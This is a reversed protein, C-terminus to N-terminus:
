QAASSTTTQTASRAELGRQAQQTGNREAHFARADRTAGWSTAFAPSGTSPEAARVFCAEFWALMCFPARTSARASATLLPLCCAIKATANSMSSATHTAPSASLMGLPCFPGCVWSSFTTTSFSARSRTSRHPCSSSPSNWLSGALVRDTPPAATAFGHWLAVM